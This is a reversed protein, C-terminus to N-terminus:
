AANKESGFGSKGTVIRDFIEKEFASRCFGEALSWVLSLAPGYELLKKKAEVSSLERLNVKKVTNFIERFGLLRKQLLINYHIIGLIAKLDKNIIGQAQMIEEIKHLTESNNEQVTSKVADTITDALSDVDIKAKLAAQIKEVLGSNTSEM